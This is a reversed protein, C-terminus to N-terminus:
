NPSFSGEIIRNVLTKIGEKDEPDIVTFEVNMQYCDDCKKVRLIKGYIDRTRIGLTEFSLKFVMNLYPEVETETCALMGGASINVIYGHNEESCIVKGECLHFSLPINVDVRLSKRVEREPVQLNYPENVALLEYLPVPERKGKVNVHIPDKVTIFDKLRSYTNQSILIQGRLTYAEIRSTLNVEDGIVTYESHLDSGIKGAVVSGTNIGIGMYLNPMGLAENEKNFGDMALQMEVSCCVAQIVDEVSGVPAGFLAMVSDGMFKDVTGGHRYIIECMRAFYRNLMDVVERAAYTETIVTFGRLDSLLVTVEKAEGGLPAEVVGDLVSRLCSYLESRIEIPTQAEEEKRSLCSEIAPVLHEVLKDPDRPRYCPFAHLNEKDSGDTSARPNESGREIFAKAIIVALLSCLLLKVLCLVDGSMLVIATSTPVLAAIALGLLLRNGRKM